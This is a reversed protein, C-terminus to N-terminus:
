CYYLNFFKGIKSNTTAIIKMIFHIKFTKAKQISFNKTGQKIHEELRICQSNLVKLFVSFSLKIYCFM